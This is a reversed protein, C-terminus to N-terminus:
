QVLLNCPTAQQAMITMPLLSPRSVFSYPTEQPPLSQEEEEKTRPLDPEFGEEIEEKFATIRAGDSVHM